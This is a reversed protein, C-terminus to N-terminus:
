PYKQKLLKLNAKATPQNPDLSLTYELMKRAEQYRGKQILILALNNYPTTYTPSIEIAKRFASEAADMQGTNVYIEGLNYYANPSIPELELSRKLLEIAENTRNIRTYAVALNRLLHPDNPALNRALEWEKLAKKINGQEEFVYGLSHHADAGLPDKRVSDRWLAVESSWLKNREIVMVSFLGLLAMGSVVITKRFRPEDRRILRIAGASVILLLGVMPVYLRRENVIQNLPIIFEPILAIIYWLGGFQVVPNRSQRLLFALLVLIIISIFPWQLVPAGLKGIGTFEPYSHYTNLNNPWLMTRFNYTLVSIQTMLNGAYDRVPATVVVTDLGLAARRIVLYILAVVGFPLYRRIDKGIGEDARRDILRDSVWMLAPLVIINEKVLLGTAYATVAGWRYYFSEPKQRWLRHLLFGGLFFIGALSSSRSSIYNVVETNVPHAAFILGTVLAVRRQGTIFYVIGMVLMVALFHFFLNCAHWGAGSFGFAAYDAWYSILLLPRFMRRGPLSSFTQPDTFFSGINGASRIALNKEISHRDDLTFPVHWTNSYIAGLLVATLLAAAAIERLSPFPAIQEAAQIPSKKSKEDKGRPKEKTEPAPQKEQQAVADVIRRVESEKLNLQRALEAVSRNKWERRIMARQKKTIQPQQTM